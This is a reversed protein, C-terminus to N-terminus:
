ILVKAAAIHFIFRGLARGEMKRRKLDWIGRGIRDSCLLRPNRRRSIVPLIRRKKKKYLLYFSAFFFLLSVCFFFVFCLHHIVKEFSFFSQKQNKRNINHSRIRPNGGEFVSFHSKIYGSGFSFYILICGKKRGERSNKRKKGAAKNTKNTAPTRLLPRPPERPNPASASCAHLRLM